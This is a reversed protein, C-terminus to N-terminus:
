THDATWSSFGFITQKGVEELFRASNQDSRSPLSCRLINGHQLRCLKFQNDIALGSTRKRDEAQRYEVDYGVESLGKLFASLCPDIQQRRNHAWGRFFRVSVSWRAIDSESDPIRVMVSMLMTPAM